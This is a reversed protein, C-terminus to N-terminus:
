CSFVFWSTSPVGQAKSKGGQRKQGLVIGIDELLLLFCWNRKLVFRYFCWDIKFFQYSTTNPALIYMESIRCM